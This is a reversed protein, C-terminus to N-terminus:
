LYRDVLELFVHAATKAAELSGHCRSFELTRSEPTAREGKCSRNGNHLPFHM